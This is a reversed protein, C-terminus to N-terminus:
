VQRLALYREKVADLDYVLQDRENALRNLYYNRRGPLLLSRWLPWKALIRESYFLCFLASLPLTAGYILAEVPGCALYAASIRVLYYFPFAAAGIVLKITGIMEPTQQYPRVFLRPLFYPLANNLLGYLALPAGLIALLTHQINEEKSNALTQPALNLRQLKRRYRRLRAAFCQVLQPDCDAYHHVAQIIEQGARLTRSSEPTETVANIIQGGYVCSLDGIVTELDSDEVHWTLDILRQHIVTALEAAGAAHNHRFAALFPSVEIPGGFHVAVDSRFCDPDAYALGVPVICVDTNSEDLARLAIRAAGPKLPRVQRPAQSSGEPFLALSHGEKLVQDASRLMDQNRGLGAGGDQSRAIPIMGLRKLFFAYIRRKFLTSKGLFRPVTGPTSAALLLVDLMVNPHNAVFIVPRHLPVLHRGRIDIKRFFVWLALRVIPSLLAILM